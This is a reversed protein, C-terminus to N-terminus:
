FLTYHSVAVSNARVHVEIVKNVLKFQPRLHISRGRAIGTVCCVSHVKAFYHIFITQQTGCLQLGCLLKQNEELTILCELPQWMSTINSYSHDHLMQTSKSIVRFPKCCNKSAHIFMVICCSVILWWNIMFMFNHHHRIKAFAVCPIRNDADWYTGCQAVAQFNAVSVNDATM